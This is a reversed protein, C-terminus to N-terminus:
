SRNKESIPKVNKNSKTEHIPNLKSMM